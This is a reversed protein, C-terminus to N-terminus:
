PRHVTRQIAATFEHLLIQGFAANLKVRSPETIRERTERIGPQSLGSISCVYIEM